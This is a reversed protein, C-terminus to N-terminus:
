SLYAFHYRYYCRTLQSIRVQIHVFVAPMASATALPITVPMRIPPQRCDDVLGATLEQFRLQALMYLRYMVFGSALRGFRVLM